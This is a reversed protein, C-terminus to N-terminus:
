AISPRARHARHRSGMPRASGLPPVTSRASVSTPSGTTTPLTPQFASPSRRGPQEVMLRELCCQRVEMSPIASRSRCPTQVPHGANRIRRVRCTRSSPSPYTPRCRTPSGPFAATTPRPLIASWTREAPGVPIAVRRRNLQRRSELRRRASRPRLSLGYRPARRPWLFLRRLKGQRLRGASRPIKSPSPSIAPLRVTVHM